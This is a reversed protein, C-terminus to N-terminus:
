KPMLAVRTLGAGRAMDIVQIVPEFDLDPAASVFIVRDGRVRYIERLRAELREFPVAERNIEVTRDGTVTIVVQGLSSSEEPAPQPVQTDFGISRTGIMFIILLVLLIDIMPTVNVEPKRPGSGSVSLAM